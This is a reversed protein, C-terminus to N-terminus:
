LDKSSHILGKIEAEEAKRLLANDGIFVEAQGTEKKGSYRANSVKGEWFYDETDKDPKISNGFAITATDLLRLSDPTKDTFLSVGYFKDDLFYYLISELKVTGIALNDDKKSYTKIVGRDDVLKLDKLDTLASGFKIGRFGNLSDLRNVSASPAGPVNTSLTLPADNTDAPKEQAQLAMSFSTACLAALTLHAQTRILRTISTLKM